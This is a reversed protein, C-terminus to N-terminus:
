RPVKGVTQHLTPVRGWHRRDPRAGAAVIFTSGLALRAVGTHEPADDKRKDDALEVIHRRMPLLLNWARRCTLLAEGPATDDLWHRGDIEDERVRLLSLGSVARVDDLTRLFAELDAGRLTWGFDAQHGGDFWPSLYETLARNIRDITRGEPAGRALEVRCRVQVREWGANRVEITALPSSLGILYDRIEKLEVANLRALEAARSPDNRPGVPVVVVGVHGARHAHHPSALNDFCKVKHVQAFRELVLREYDWPVSARQKHRLREGVRTRFRQEDEASRRGFPPAPQTVALVGPLPLSPQVMVTVPEGRGAVRTARLAQAHVALLGAFRDSPADTSVRLWYLGAPLKTSKCTMPMAPLNLTVIGTTLFGLTADSLVCRQTDLPRWGEDTLAAWHIVPKPGDSVLTEVASEAHLEFLLTLVGSPAAAAELGIYLQGDDDFRPLVTQTKDAGAPPPFIEQHGFPLLHLLRDRGEPAGREGGRSLRIRRSARYAITIREIVPTYPASPLPLPRRRRRRANTTIADTLLSPYQAHGFAAPPGALRLRAFGNRAGQELGSATPSSRWFARLAVPDFVLRSHRSLNGSDPETDFLRMPIGGAPPADVWQGDRLISAAVTFTQNRWDGDYGRYLSEFGAGGSPLGGWDVHLELEDLDKLALEGNGVVLYSSMDPLPGFPAFPKSADLRGLQNHAELTRVGRVRVDLLVSDLGADALLSLPFMRAERHTLIRMVPEDTPWGPGHLATTCPVVPPVSAPIRMTLVLAHRDEASDGAARTVEISPVSVWGDATSLEVSFLGCFMQDLMAQRGSRDPPESKRALWLPDGRSPEVPQQQGTADHRPHRPDLEAAQAQVKALTDAPLPDEASLLWAAFMRGFWRCFRQRDPTKRGAEALAKDALEQATGILSLDMGLTLRIEREGERLRLLPSALALGIRADQSALPVRDRLSGGFLPMAEAPRRPQPPVSPVIMSKVRTVYDFLREPTILADRELRLTHLAAVRVDTVLLPADAAYEIPQEDADTGVVFRTGAGIAPDSPSAGDRRLVLHVHDSEPGRPAMKLCERYYFDILRESFRNTNAQVRGYLQLFALLLAVAPEHQHGALSRPLESEAVAKVRNLAGVLAFFTKRLPERISGGATGRLEYAARASGSPIQQAQETWSQHLRLATRQALEGIDSLKFAELLWRVDGALAPLQRAICSQVAKAAPREIPHLLKLWYDLRKVLEVAPQAAVALAARDTEAAAEHAAVFEDRLRADDFSVIAALVVSEDDRLLDGWNGDVHEEGDVFSCASAMLRTMTIRDALTTEDVGFLTGSLARPLRGQQSTGDFVASFADPADSM